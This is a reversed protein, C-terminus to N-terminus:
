SYSRTRACRTSREELSGLGAATPDPAEIIDTTENALPGFVCFCLLWLWLWFSSRMESRRARTASVIKRRFGSFSACRKRYLGCFCDVKGVSFRQNFM